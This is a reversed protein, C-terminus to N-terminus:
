KERTEQLRASLLGAITENNENNSPPVIGRDWGGDAWIQTEEM